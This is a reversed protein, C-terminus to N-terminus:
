KNNNRYFEEFSQNQYAGEGYYKVVITLFSPSFMDNISGVRGYQRNGNRDTFFGFFYMAPFKFNNAMLYHTFQNPQNQGTSVFPKDYGMWYISDTTTAEVRIPYFHSNVYDALKKDKLVTREHIMAGLTLYPIYGRYKEDVYLDLLIPKAEKNFLQRAQDVTLWNIHGTTDMQPPKQKKLEDAYVDPFSWMYMNNFVEPECQDTLDEAFYALFPEISKVDMFGPVPLVRKSRDIYVITPYSLRSGLLHPALSNIRGDSTYEKGQFRITDSTEADFRVCYFNQNIYSALSKNQFTTAMMRKCWGCWDTYVDILFPRSEISDLREAEAFSIWNIPGLNEQARIGLASLMLALALLLRKM